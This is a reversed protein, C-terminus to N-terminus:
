FKNFYAQLMWPPLTPLGPTVQLVNTANHPIGYIKGNPALVGGNYKSTGILGPYKTSDITTLDGTDTVPDIILVNAVNIPICYIKGNQALVGGVYKNRPAFSYTPFEITTLDAVRTKELNTINGATINVGFAYLFTMTTNSDISRIYGTYKTNSSTTIIINDGVLLGSTLLTAGAGVYLQKTSNTYTSTSVTIGYLASINVKPSDPDIILVNLADRPIGYLKGNPATVAGAYLGTNSGTYNLGTITTFDATDTLPDIIIVSNADRPVGYVKGNPALCGGVYKALVNLEPYLTSNITTTDATPPNSLTDIILVNPALYPMCYIKGNPALVGGFYKGNQSSLGSLTTTDATNTVPDIILVNTALYPMCYIKGNPAVVGGYYKSGGSLGPYKTSNITTTDATGAVPDIILVNTASFPIGYIKGNSALVGGIYKSSGILGPYKTSSITTTDAANEPLGQFQNLSLFASASMVASDLQLEEVELNSLSAASAALVETVVSESQVDTASLTQAQLVTASYESLLSM